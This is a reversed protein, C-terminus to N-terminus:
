WINSYQWASKWSQQALFFPLLQHVFYLFTRLTKRKKMILSSEAAYVKSNCIFLFTTSFNDILKDQYHPHHNLFAKITYYFLDNLPLIFKSLPQFSYFKHISKIIM